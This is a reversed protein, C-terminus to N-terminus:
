LLDRWKDIEATARQKKEEEPSTIDTPSVSEEEKLVEEFANVAGKVAGNKGNQHNKKTESNDTNIRILTGKNPIKIVAGMGAREVAGLFNRVKNESGWFWRTKLAKMSTKVAGDSDAMMCLDIWAHWKDFPEESYLPNHMEERWLKIWGKYGYNAM